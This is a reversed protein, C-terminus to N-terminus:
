LGLSVPIKAVRSMRRGVAFMYDQELPLPSPTAFKAREIPIIAM